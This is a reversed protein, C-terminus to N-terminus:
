CKKLNYVIGKFISKLIMFFTKNSFTKCAITADSVITGFWVLFSHFKSYVFDDINISKRTLSFQRSYLLYIMRERVATKEHSSTGSAWLSNERVNTRRLTVQLRSKMDRRLAQTMYNTKAQLSAPVYIIISQGFFQSFLKKM